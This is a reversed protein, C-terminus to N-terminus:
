DTGDKHEERLWKEIIKTTCNEESLEMKQKISEFVCNECNILKINSLYKALEKDNLEILWERNTM